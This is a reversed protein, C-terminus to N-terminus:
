FFLRASVGTGWGQVGVHADAPNTVFGWDGRLFPQFSVRGGASLDMDLRVSVMRGSLTGERSWQKYEALPTFSVMRSTAVRWSSGFTLLNQSSGAIPSGAIAGSSRYYDWGFVSLIGAGVIGSYNLEAIWRNGSQFAQSTTPGGPTQFNDTGFTSFTIGGGFRSSGALADAALQVRTEIGPEYTLGLDKFPEYGASVRASAGLGVNFSGLRRALAVGGTFNTGSSYQSVPLTLFDGSAAGVVAIHNQDVRHGTPLNAVGSIVLLDRGLTYTARLQTDTIGSVTESAGGAGKLATRAWRTSVDASVRSSIPVAAVVPVSWQTLSSIGLGPRFAFGRGEVGLLGVPQQYLGQAQAVGAALVLGIAFSGLTVRRSM